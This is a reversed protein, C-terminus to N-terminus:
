APNPWDRKSAWQKFKERFADVLQPYFESSIEVFEYAERQTEGTEHQMDWIPEVLGTWNVDKGNQLYAKATDILEILQALTLPLKSTRPKTRFTIGVEDVVRYCIRGGSWRARISTVEAHTTTPLYIRAIETENGRVPALDEGSRARPNISGLFNKEERTSDRLLGPDIKGHAALDRKAALRRHTGTINALRRKEKDWYSSPRFNYDIANNLQRANHNSNNKKSM